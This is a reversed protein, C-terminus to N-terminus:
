GFVAYLRGRFFRAFDIKLMNELGVGVEGFPLTNDAVKFPVAMKLWQFMRAVSKFMEM